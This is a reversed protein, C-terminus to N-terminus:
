HNGEYILSTDPHFNFWAFWYMRHVPIAEGDLQGGVGGASDIALKLSHGGIDQEWAGVSELWDSDVAISRGQVEVGYVVQKVHLRADSRSVPFLLHDSGSYDAYPDKTYKEPEGPLALVQGEPHAERWDGFFTMTSPVTELISGREPGALAQGTVQQWLSSTSRDWLVLDNKHLLGSVGLEVEEGNLERAFVVGSGCLPCYTVAVPRDSFRDNVVEHRDLIRTPYARTTGGLNVVLVLDDDDLYDAESAGVFQPQDISPICDRHSCGQYVEDLDADIDAQSYGFTEALIDTEYARPNQVRKEDEGSAFTFSCFVALLMAIPVRM